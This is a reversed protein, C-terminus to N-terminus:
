KSYLSYHTFLASTKSFLRIFNCIYKYKDFKPVFNDHELDKTHFFFM